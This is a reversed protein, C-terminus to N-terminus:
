ADAVRAGIAPIFRRLCGARRLRRRGALLALVLGTLAFGSLAADSLPGWLGDAIAPVAVLAVLPLGYLAFSAGLLHRPSLELTVRDGPRLEIGPPAELLLQRERPNGALLGAGCGRGAACRACAPMGAVSVTVTREAIAIVQAVPQQMAGTRECLGSHRGTPNNM